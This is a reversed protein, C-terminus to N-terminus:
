LKFFENQWWEDNEATTRFVLFQLNRSGPKWMLELRVPYFGKKLPVAFSQLGVSAKGENSMILQDGIFLRSGDAETVFVYYGDEKIELNGEVLYAANNTLETLKFDKGVVGTRMPKLVKFDPVKDWSGEFYSYHWEGSKVKKSKVPQVTGIKFSGELSQDYNKRNAFSKAKVTAPGSLTFIEGQKMVPSANTPESGDITYRASPNQNMIYVKLPRTAELMGNIPHYEPAKPSYGYHSFRFGDYYAKHQVSYHTEDKYPICKWRLSAPAKAQLASDMGWIGQPRYSTELGAIFLTSTVESFEPLKKAALKSVYGNDWNINPDSAVYSQFLMPEKIFAYVAFLGGFSGGVLSRQGSAPYKKEVYPILETKIFSHFNDAGGLHAINDVKTPSFDRDRLNVKNVYTNPILVFINPPAYGSNKAFNYIFPIQEMYWEGDLVYLVEYKNESGPQYDGPLIVQIRRNEKLVESYISDRIGPWNQASASLQFLFIAVFLIFHFKRNM